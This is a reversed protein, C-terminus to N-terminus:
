PVPGKRERVEEWRDLLADMEDQIFLFFDRADALRGGSPSADGGVARVGERVIDAVKQYPRGQISATYWTGDPFRYIDRRSGPVPERIVLGIQTLYRVAGSVAAASVGLREGIEGATLGPEDAVMLTGLVRAPMRPFGLDNFTMAFREVFRRVAEEDRAGDAGTTTM